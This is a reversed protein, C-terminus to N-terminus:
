ADLAEVFGVTTHEDSRPLAVEAELGHNVVYEGVPASARERVNNSLLGALPTGRRWGKCSGVVDNAGDAGVWQLQMASGLVAAAERGIAGM